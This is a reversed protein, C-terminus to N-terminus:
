IVPDILVYIDCIEPYYGLFTRKTTMVTAKM